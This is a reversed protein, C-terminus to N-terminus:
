AHTTFEPNYTIYGLMMYGLKELCDQNKGEMSKAEM